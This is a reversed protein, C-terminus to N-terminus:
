KADGLPVANGHVECQSRDQGTGNCFPCAGGGYGETGVGLTGEFCQCCPKCLCEKVDDYGTEPDIPM